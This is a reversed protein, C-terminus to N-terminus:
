PISIKKDLTNGDDKVIKELSGNDDYFFFQRFKLDSKDFLYKATVLDTEPKYAYLIIKGNDEAEM